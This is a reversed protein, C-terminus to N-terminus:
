SALIALYATMDAVEVPEVYRGPPLRKEIRRRAEPVDTNWLSAYHARVREAM